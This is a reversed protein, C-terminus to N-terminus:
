SEEYAGLSTPDRCDGFSCAETRNQPPKDGAYCCARVSRICTDSTELERVSTLFFILVRIVDDFGLFIGVLDADMRYRTCVTRLLYVRM